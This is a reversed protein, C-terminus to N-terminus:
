RRKVGWTKENKNVIGLYIYVKNRKAWLTYISLSFKKSIEKDILFKWMKYRLSKWLTARWTKVLKCGQGGILMISSRKARLIVKSLFFFIDFFNRLFFFTLIKRVRNVIKSPLNRTYNVRDWLIAQEFILRLHM